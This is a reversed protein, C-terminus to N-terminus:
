FSYPSYLIYSLTFTQISLWFSCNINWWTVLLHTWHFYYWKCINEGIISKLYITNTGTYFWQGLESSDRSDRGIWVWNTFKKSIPHNIGAMLVRGVRGKELTALTQSELTSTVLEVLWFHTNIFVNDPGYVEAVLTTGSNRSNQTWKFGSNRGSNWTFEAM